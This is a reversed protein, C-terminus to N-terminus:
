GNWFEKRLKELFNPGYKAGLIRHMEESCRSNRDERSLLRRGMREAIGDDKAMELDNIVIIKKGDRRAMWCTELSSGWACTLDPDYRGISNFWDAKYLVANNDIARVSKSYGESKNLEEWATGSIAPSVMVIDDSSFLVKMMPSLYDDELLFSVSTTLIWYADFKKRLLKEQADAFHLGLLIAHTMEVPFSVTIYNELKDEWNLNQSGNNVTIVRYNQNVILTNRFIHKSINKALEPTDCNPIIVAVWRDLFEM